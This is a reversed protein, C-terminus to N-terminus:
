GKKKERDFDGGREFGSDSIIRSTQAPLAPM